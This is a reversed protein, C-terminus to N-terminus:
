SEDALEFEIEKSEGASMGVLGAELEDVLRGSGVEVVYDRHSDGGEADLDVVVTDGAQVPRDDVPTLEAVGHQLVALEHDVLDDPVEAEPRPVEVATWDPVDPKPQVAVDATFQFAADDSAPLEYDYQPQEVPRIRSRNAANLFWGGIHSEVAEAYLREKGVRSILVPMPVKGKRFGPIKASAALDSAAHEVAHQMDAPPVDVTLRVRNDALEEVRTEMRGNLCLSDQSRRERSHLTLPRPARM